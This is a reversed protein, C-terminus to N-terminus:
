LVGDVSTQAGHCDGSGASFLVDLFTTAKSLHRGDFVGTKESKKGAVQEKAAKLERNAQDLTPKNFQGKRFQNSHLGNISAQIEDLATQANQSKQPSPSELYNEVDKIKNLAESVAPRDSQMAATLVHDLMVPDKCRALYHGKNGEQKGSQQDFQPFWVHFKQKTFLAVEGAFSDASTSDCEDNSGLQKDAQIEIGIKGQDFELPSTSANGADPSSTLTNGAAATVFYHLVMLTTYAKGEAQTAATTIQSANIISYSTAASSYYCPKPLSIAYRAGKTKIVSAVTQATAKKPLSFVVAASGAPPSTVDCTPARNGIDLKYRGQFLFTTGHPLTQTRASNIQPALHHAAQPAVIVVRNPDDPDQAYSWPGTVTITAEVNQANAIGSAALFMLLLSAFRIMSRSYSQARM